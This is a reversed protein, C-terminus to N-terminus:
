VPDEFDMFYTDLARDYFSTVTFKQGLNNVTLSM